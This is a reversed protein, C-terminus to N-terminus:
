SKRYKRIDNFIFKADLSLNYYEKLNANNIAVFDSDETIKKSKRVFKYLYVRYGIKDILKELFRLIFYISKNKYLEKVIFLTYKNNYIIIFISKFVKILHALLTYLIKKIQRYIKVLFAILKIKTLKEYLLFM